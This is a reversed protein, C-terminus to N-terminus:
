PKRRGLFEGLRNIISTKSDTLETMADLNVCFQTRAVDKKRTPSDINLPEFEWLLRMPDDLDVVSVRLKARGNQASIVELRIAKVTGPYKLALMDWFGGSHGRHCLLWRLLRSLRKKM